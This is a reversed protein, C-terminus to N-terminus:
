LKEKPKCMMCTCSTAHQVRNVPLSRAIKIADAKTKIIETIGNDREEPTQCYSLMQVIWKGVGGFPKAEELLRAYDEEELRVSILRKM